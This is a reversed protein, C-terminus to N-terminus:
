VPCEKCVGVKFNLQPFHYSSCRGGSIVGTVVWCLVAATECLFLGKPSSITIKYEFTVFQLQEKSCTETIVHTDLPLIYLIKDKPQSRQM